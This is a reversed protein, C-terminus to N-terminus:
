GELIDRIIEEKTKATVRIAAKQLYKGVIDRIAPAENNKFSEILADSISDTLKNILAQILCFQLIAKM